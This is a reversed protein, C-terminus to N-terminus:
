SLDITILKSAQKKYNNSNVVKRFRFYFNMVLSLKQWFGWQKNYYTIGTTVQDQPISPVEKNNLIKDIALIYMEQGTIIVNRLLEEHTWDPNLDLVKTVILNGSDIGEDLWMVTNGIYHLQNTSICWNTCNPGGKIYPSLGTHLNVIGKTPQAKILEKKLLSTGSVVALDFSFSKFFEIAKKENVNAVICTPVDPFTNYKNRFWKQTNIWAKDVTFYFIAKNVVKRIFEFMSKGHKRKKKEVILGVLNYRSHIQNSLAFEMSEISCLIMVRNGM